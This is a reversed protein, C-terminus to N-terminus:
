VSVTREEMRRKEIASLANRTSPELRRGKTRTTLAVRLHFRIHLVQPVTSVPSFLLVKICIRGLSVKEVVFRVHVSRPDLEPRQPSLGAFVKIIYLNLRYQAIFM